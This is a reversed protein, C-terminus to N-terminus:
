RSNAPNVPNIIRYLYLEGQKEVLVAHSNIWQGIEGAPKLNGSGAIILMKKQDPNQRLFEELDTKNEIGDVFTRETGNNYYYTLPVAYYAPYILIRDGTGTLNHLGPSLGKWDQGYKSDASYYPNLSPVSIAVLLLIAICSFRVTFIRHHVSSISYAIILFFFPLLGILYRSVVPIRYSLIITIILPLALAVAIFLFRKRDNRLIRVLGVM